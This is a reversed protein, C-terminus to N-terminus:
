IQETQDSISINADFLAAFERIQQIQRDNLVGGNPPLMKCNKEGRIYSIYIRNHPNITRAVGIELGCHFSEIRIGKEWVANLIQEPFEPFARVYLEWRKGDISKTGKQIVAM